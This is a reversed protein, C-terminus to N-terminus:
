LLRERAIRATIPVVSRLLNQDVETLDVAPIRYGSDTVEGYRPTSVLIELVDRSSSTSINLVSCGALLTSLGFM